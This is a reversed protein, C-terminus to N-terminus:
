RLRIKDKDPVEKNMQRLKNSSLAYGNHNVLPKVCIYNDWINQGTGNYIEDLNGNEDINVALFYDPIGKGPFYCYDKFSAKIQVRRKTDEEEGDYMPTNNDKYLEIAYKESVLVEGIDGVLKGDLSFSRGYRERLKKTIALLQKIEEM